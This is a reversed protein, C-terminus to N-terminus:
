QPGHPGLHLVGCGAGLPSPAAWTTAMACLHRTWDRAAVKTTGTAKLRAVAATVWPAAFSSGTYYSGMGTSGDAAKVVPLWVDVGPASIGVYSGRAGKPDPQAAADVSAVAVVGAYAAPYVLSPAQEGPGVSAVVPIGADLLRNVLLQLVRDGRSALSMNVVEVKEQAMWNMALGLALTNSTAFGRDDYMVNAQFLHAGPALGSFGQGEGKDIARGLIISSVATGHEAPAPRAMPTLFQKEEVTRAALMQRSLGAQLGTDIVGIRLPVEGKVQPLGVMALAYQRAKPMKVQSPSNSAQQAYGRAHLDAEIGPYRQKLAEVARQAEAQSTFQLVGMQLKMALLHVQSRLIGGTEEALAPLAAAQEQDPIAVIVQGLEHVPMDALLTPKITHRDSALGAQETVYYTLTPMPFGAMGGSPLDTVRAGMQSANSATAEPRWLVLYRGPQSTPLAEPPPGPVLVRRGAYLAHEFTGVELYRQQQLQLEPDLSAQATLDLVTPEPDGPQVVEWRGKLVGTGQYDVTAVVPGVSADRQVVRMPQRGGNYQFALEVKSLTLPMQSPSGSLRLPIAIFTRGGAVGGAAAGTFRRVVYFETKGLPRLRQYMHLSVDGPVTLTERASTASVMNFQSVPDVNLESGRECPNSPFQDLPTVGPLLQSCFYGRTPADAGKMVYSIFVGTDANPSVTRLAAVANVVTGPTISSRAAAADGGRAQAMATGSGIGVSLAISLLLQWGCVSSRFFTM